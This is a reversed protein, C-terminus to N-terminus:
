RSPIEPLPDKTVIWHTFNVYADAFAIDFKEQNTNAWTTSGFLKHLVDLLRVPKLHNQWVELSPIAYDRATLILIRAALEGLHSENVLGAGCLNTSLTELARGLMNQDTCCSFLEWSM